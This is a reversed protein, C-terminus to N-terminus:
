EVVFELVTRKLQKFESSLDRYEVQSQQAILNNLHEIREGTAPHTSLFLLTNTILKIAQENGLKALIKKEEEILKEFFIIMGHPDINAAKLLRYGKEDAENEFDRSYQQNILMPAADALVAVMGSMDGLATQIALFIGASSILHRIGHQESVHTIEHALVGLVEEASDAAQILGSNIVVYGGPLAFANINPDSVVYFQYSYRDTPIHAALASTFSELAAKGEDSEMIKQKFSYQAFGKEGIQAEISVPLQAAIVRALTDMFFFPSIIVFFLLCLAGLTVGWNLIRRKRIESVQSRVDHRYTLLHNKLLSRDSSYFTYDPLAPHSILVLRKSAGGLSLSINELPITVIEVACTFVLGQDTVELTGSVRDNPYKNHFAHAPYTM